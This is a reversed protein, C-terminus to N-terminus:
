GNKDEKEVKVRNEKNHPYGLKKQMRVLGSPTRHGLEPHDPDEWLEQLKYAWDQALKLARVSKGDETKVAHSRHAMSVARVSKGDEGVISMREQNLKLIASTMSAPTGEEWGEGPCNISRKVDGDKTWWKSGGHYPPEIANPNINTCWQSGTYFDLYYQEESRDDNGDDEGIFWYFGQPNKQLPRNFEPNMDRELHQKYRRPFDTTSGVQFRKTKLNLGIYTIV